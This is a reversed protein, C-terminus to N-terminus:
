RQRKRGDRITADLLDEVHKVAKGIVEAEQEVSLGTPDANKIKRVCEARISALISDDLVGGDSVHAIIRAAFERLCASGLTLCAASLRDADSHRGM